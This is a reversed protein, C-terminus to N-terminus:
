KWRTALSFGIGILGFGVVINWAGIGPIPYRTSSIYFTVIWLLGALFAAVMIPALWKPSEVWVPAEQEVVPHHEVKKKKRGRSVPM